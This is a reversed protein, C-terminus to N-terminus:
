VNETVCEGNPSYVFVRFVRKDTFIEFANFCDERSEFPKLIWGYLIINFYDDKSFFAVTDDEIIGREIFLSWTNLQKVAQPIIEWINMLDGNSFFTMGVPNSGTEGWYDWSKASALIM